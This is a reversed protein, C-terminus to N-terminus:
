PNEIRFLPRVARVASANGGGAYGDGGVGAAGTASAVSRLWYWDTHQDDEDMIIVNRRDKMGELMKGEDFIEELSPITLLDGDNEEGHFPKLVVRLEDPFLELVEGNVTKRIDSKEYGGATRGSKNWVCNMVAAETVFVMDPGDQQAAIARITRGNTLTFELEDGVEYSGIEDVKTLHRM